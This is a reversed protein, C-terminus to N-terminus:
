YKRVELFKQPRRGDEVVVCIHQLEVSKSATSTKFNAIVTDCLFAPVLMLSSKLPLLMRFKNKMITLM